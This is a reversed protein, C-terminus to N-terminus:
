RLDECLLGDGPGCTTGVVCTGSPGPNVCEIDPFQFSVPCDATSACSCFGVSGLEGGGQCARNPGCAADNGLTCQVGSVVILSNCIYGRPCPNSDSCGSAGCFFGQCIRTSCSNFFCDGNNPCDDDTQCFAAECTGRDCQSDSTCPIPAVSNDILCENTSCDGGFPNAPGCEGCLQSRQPHNVCRNNTGCLQGYECYANGSCAGPTENCAGNICPTGLPCDGDDRCGPTCARNQACYSGYPCQSDLVCIDASKPLCSGTTSDCFENDGCDVNTFCELRTQCAGAVNCFESADCANDDICLCLGRSTECRQSADCDLDSSCGELQVQRPCGAITVVVASVVVASVVASVAASVVGTWTKGWDM